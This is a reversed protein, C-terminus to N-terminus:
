SKSRRYGDAEAAETTTYCRDARLRDYFRGGPVHFIGSAVKVKVPFGDPDPGEEDAVVWATMPVPAGHSVSAEPWPPWEPPSSPIAAASRQKVWAAIVGAVGAAIAVILARRMVTASMTSVTTRRARAM